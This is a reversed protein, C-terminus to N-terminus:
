GAGGTVHSVGSLPFVIGPKEAFLYTAATLRGNTKREVGYPGAPLSMGELPNDIGWRCVTRNNDHIIESQRGSTVAITGLPGDVHLDFTERAKTLDPYWSAGALIFTGRPSITGSVGYGPNDTNV